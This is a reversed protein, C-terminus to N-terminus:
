RTAFSGLPLKPAIMSIVGEFATFGVIEEAVATSVLLTPVSRALTRTVKAISSFGAVTYQLAEEV